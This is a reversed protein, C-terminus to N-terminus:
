RKSILPITSYRQTASDRFGTLLKQRASLGFVLDFLIGLAFWLCFYFTPDPEFRGATLSILSNAGMVLMYVVWPLLLIRLVAGSTVRSQNQSTTASAMAVWGLVIMDLVLMAIGALWVVVMRVHTQFAMGAFILELIIVVLTPWLFLRRLALWQGRVIDHVTLPTSLLLELAGAKRDEILRQGSEMTIWLKLASNLILAMTINTAEDVWIAGFILRGGVWWGGMLLFLGWVQLPKFRSRSALWYFANIDLLKKRFAKRKASSRFKWDHRFGPGTTKDSRAPKDQWSRPTIWCALMVFIWTLGHILGLSLWYHQPGWSKYALDFSLVFSYIPSFLFFEREFPHWPLFYQILLTVAPLLLTFTLLILLFASMARRAERSKASVYIGIALSFFFTNVLVLVVRWFEGNTVGGMLLPIAMVPVVALLGYFANLSTAVMKGLVVDYGKLDTLFLLGLTGERKEESLCDVTSGRGSLLCYFLALISLGIFIYQGVAHQPEGLNVFFVTGGLAMAFFAILMRGLYTSRRRATVRLERDVIPLFTM